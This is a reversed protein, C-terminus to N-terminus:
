DKQLLLIFRYVYGVIKNVSIVEGTVFCMSALDIVRLLKILSQTIRALSAPRTTRVVAVWSESLLPEM